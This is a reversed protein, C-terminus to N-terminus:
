VVVLTCVHGKKISYFRIGGKNSKRAVEQLQKRAESYKPINWCILLPKGNETSPIIISEGRNAKKVAKTFDIDVGAIKVTNSM